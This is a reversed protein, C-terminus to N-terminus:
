AFLWKAVARTYRPMVIYVMLAVIIAAVVLHSIGFLGLFPVASFLPTLAWPVLMTLPFISPLTILFQKYPKAQRAAPVLPTFWFEIGPRIDVEEQANLYPQIEAILAKRVDSGLWKRLNSITDFHLVITYADDGAHPRIVDVSQHGAFGQAIPVIKKLWTEYRALSERNPRQRIVTTVPTELKIEDTGHM